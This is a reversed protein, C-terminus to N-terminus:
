PDCQVGVEVKTLHIITSMQAARETALAAQEQNSIPM